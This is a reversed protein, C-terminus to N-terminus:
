LRPRMLDKLESDWGLAEAITLCGDDCDGKLFVDPSSSYGFRLGLNEGVRERNILMRPTGKNVMMVLSAFPHVQLSTGMVILLDAKGFDM